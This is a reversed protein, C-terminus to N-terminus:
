TSQRATNVNERALQTRPSPMVSLRRRVEASRLASRFLPGIVGALQDPRAITAHATSGFVRRLLLVDTGAGITLCVCGTGRRRAETLARRADAAGYAREYGHDYALGDSLVVLLRRSTGGRAELTASGHRIAAGLRSYAGPELSNLRRIVQSNLQDDFRKVPVMSVARRGQSYYAYLAVRDGLDHLAVTLNAVAARQQEHVTRGATGPEGSSGSVDLLLLVSLDRRRRLSDLYVAEDPVSGARVEVRAEVAADIDIDDGQSQRHRRHLGMGLRSLPRRVGIADDIAQTASGKIQPEVERVTCWAPRYSKRAVDWEPYRVGDAATQGDHDADGDDGSTSALSAVAYAGRKGSSIRHTPNDAGPPGGGSGTKRASSLMKKLWKGIFGGGGVPSTFLDPDDSDDVEGDDLEDLQTAGNRRPVHGAKEEEDQKAVGACAAIVKAARIVGFGPPPDELAGRRAAIDLSADPSDSRGAIDRDGLSALVSPLLPANAVLARHGEVSLYRKALKRRRVLAGVVDPELSGAAIMSAQVAVAKLQARPAAAADVHITQGDTWAPEGPPLGAVAVARGALASALMGLAQLRDAGAGDEM